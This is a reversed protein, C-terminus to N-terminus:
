EKKALGEKILGLWDINFQGRSLHEAKLLSRSSNTLSRAFVAYKIHWVFVYGAVMLPSTDTAFQETKYVENLTNFEDEGWKEVEYGVVRCAKVALEKCFELGEKPTDAFRLGYLLIEIPLSMVESVELLPMGQAIEAIAKESPELGAGCIWEAPVNTWNIRM